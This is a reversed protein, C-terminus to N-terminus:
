LSVSGAIGEKVELSQQRTTLKHSCHIPYLFLCGTPMKILFRFCGKPSADPLLNSRSAKYQMVSEVGTIASPLTSAVLQSHHRGRFM